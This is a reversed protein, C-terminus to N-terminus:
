TSPEHQEVLAESDTAASHFIGKAMLSQAEERRRKYIAARARHVAVDASAAAALEILSCALRLDTDSLARAREALREASGCLSAIELALTKTAPPKLNAPNGDYWGGFQRWVNRVIFEPEDYVPRLYPKNLLHAPVEVSHICTDLTAGDNMLALTQQVISELATATDDLLTHIRSAGAVPMGHAPLLLEPGLAIMERLAAAWDGPYRQVKQPNGANPFVWTVLDGTCIARHEPIWAWLHDDTEGRAHRLDFRLNGVELVLQRAFTRTPSVWRTPGWREEASGLMGGGLSAFQRRNIIGNYGNTLDYREFRPGVAEHGVIVPAPVGNTEAEDVFLAAGGVHDIHGHTYCISHVRQKSWTRLNRRVVPGFQELSTDFLVLGDETDFSAVNSFAEIFAVGTTLESLETNMRNVSMAGLYLGEDIYKASLELLEVMANAYCPPIMTHMSLRQPATPANAALM